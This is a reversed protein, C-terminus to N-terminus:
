AAEKFARVKEASAQKELLVPNNYFSNEQQRRSIRENVELDARYFQRDRRGQQVSTQPRQM